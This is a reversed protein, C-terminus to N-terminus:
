SGEWQPSLIRSTPSPDVVSPDEVVMGVYYDGSPLAARRSGTMPRDRGDSPAETSRTASAVCLENSTHTVSYSNADSQQAAEAVQAVADHVVRATSLAPSNQVDSITLGGVAVAGFAFDFAFETV